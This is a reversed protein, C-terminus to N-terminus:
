RRSAFFRGTEPDRTVQGEALLRECGPAVLLADDRGYIMRALDVDSRGPFDLIARRLREVKLDATLEGRDPTAIGDGADRGGRLWNMLSM